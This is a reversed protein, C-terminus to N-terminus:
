TSNRKSREREKKAIEDMEKLVSENFQEWGDLYVHHGSNRIMVVKASGNEAEREEPM